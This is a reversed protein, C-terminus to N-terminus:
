FGGGPKKVVPVPKKVPQPRQANGALKRCVGSFRLFLEPNAPHGTEIRVRGRFAGDADEPLGKLRLEIDVANSGSVPKVSAAFSDAWKLEQKGEPVVSVKVGSLDFDDEYATLRASRVVAQGPRVLGLSIYQPTMSLAGIVNYSINADCTYVLPKGGNKLKQKAAVAPDTSAKKEPLTVDSNMRLMFGGAGERADSGITFTATWQNSKGEEDPTVPVVEVSLGDPVPVRRTEDRTLAVREGGSTRFTIRATKEEGQRINGLQLYPPTAVIFPQISAKLTLTTTAATGDNSYVQIRVQTDNRKSGTDLTAELEIDSGAAIPEGFKYLIAETGAEERVKIEGLTCGCTPSAQTIILPETGASKMRFVHTLQDGQRARGFDHRETGFEIGLKANPNRPPRPIAGYKGSQAQGAARTKADQGKQPVKMKEPPLGPGFVPKEAGKGAAVPAADPKIPVATGRPVKTSKPPATKRGLRSRASRRKAAEGKQQAQKKLAKKKAEAKKIAEKKDVEAKKKASGDDQKKADAEKQKSGDQASVADIAPTVSALAVGGIGLCSAVLLAAPLLPRGSGATPNSRRKMTGTPACSSEHRDHEPTRLTEPSLGM